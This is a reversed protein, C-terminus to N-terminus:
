VKVRIKPKYDSDDKCKWVVNYQVSQALVDRAPTEFLYGRRQNMRSKQEKWNM